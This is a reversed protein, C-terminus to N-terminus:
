NNFTELQIVSICNYFQEYNFKLWVILVRKIAYPINHLIVSPLTWIM